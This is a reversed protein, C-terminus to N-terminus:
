ILSKKHEDCGVFLMRGAQGVYTKLCDLCPIKYVVNSIEFKELPDKGLKIYKDLKSTNRFVTTINYHKLQWKIKCSLDGYYPISVVRKHDIERKNNKPIFSSKKDKNKLQFIRNKIHKNIFNEPCNNLRM